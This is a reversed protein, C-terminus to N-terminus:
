TTQLDAPVAGTPPNGAGEEVYFIGFGASIEAIRNFDPPLPKTFELACAEFFREFGGPTTQILMVLAADGPNRFAHVEGRPMFVATHLPVEVWNGHRLFEVRGELPFFWEDEHLHYHPPPGGGPPTTNTWMSFQGGTDAASLHLAIEDGFARITRVESPPTVRSSLEVIDSM